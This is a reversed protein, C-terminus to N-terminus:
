LFAPAPCLPARSGGKWFEHVSSPRMIGTGLELQSGVPNSLVSFLVIHFKMKRLLRQWIWHSATKCTFVSGLCGAGLTADPPSVVMVVSQGWVCPWEYTSLSCSHFQLHTGPDVFDTLSSIPHTRRFVDELLSCSKVLEILIQKYQIKKKEFSYGFIM